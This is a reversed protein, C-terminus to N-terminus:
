EGVEIVIKRSDLEFIGDESIIRCKGNEKTIENLYKAYIQCWPCEPFGIYVVGTGHKLLTIVEDSSRYVFVNDEGVLTYEKAFKVADSEKEEKDRLTLVLTVALALVLIIGGILLSKKNKM